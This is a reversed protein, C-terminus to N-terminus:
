NELSKRVDLIRLVPAYSNESKDFVARGLFRADSFIALGGIKVNGFSGWGWTGAM